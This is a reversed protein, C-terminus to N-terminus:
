TGDRSKRKGVTPGAAFGMPTVPLEKHMKCREIFWRPDRRYEANLRLSYFRGCEPCNHFDPLNTLDYGCHICFPDTRASIAEKIVAGALVIPLAIAFVTLKGGYIFILQILEIRFPIMAIAALVLVLPLLLIWRWGVHRAMDSFSPKWFVIDPDHLWPAEAPSAIVAPPVPPIPPQQYIEPM